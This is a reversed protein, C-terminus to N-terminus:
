SSVSAFASYGDWYEIHCLLHYRDTMYAKRYYFPDTGTRGRHLLGKKIEGIRTLGFLMIRMNYKSLCSSLSMLYHFLYRKESNCFNCAMTDHDALEANQVAKRILCSRLWRFMPFGM